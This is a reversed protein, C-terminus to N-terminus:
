KLVSCQVNPWAAHTQASPFNHLIVVNTVQFILWIASNTLSVNLIVIVLRFINIFLPSNNFLVIYLFNLFVVVLDM